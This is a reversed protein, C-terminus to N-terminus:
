RTREAGRAGGGESASGVRRAYAAPEIPTGRWRAHSQTLEAGFLFIAASYYVWLLVVVLSGAAGYASSVGARGLYLGILHKGLTFLAATVLAGLAVERWGIRVDPLYRYIMAFLGGAVLLSVATDVAQATWAPMPLVGELWRQMGALAASVALSVLLLFAVGLVLAFSFLRTRVFNLVGQGPRPEVGWVRNLASKLQSFLRTAGFLLTAVGLAAAIGTGGSNQANHIITAIMQQGQEGMMSGFQENITQEVRGRGIVAGAIVIVLVLLPALSFVTYYAIAASLTFADDSLLNSVANRLVEWAGKFTMRRPPPPTSPHEPELGLRGGHTATQVM